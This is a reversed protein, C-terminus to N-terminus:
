LLMFDYCQSWHKLYQYYNFRTKLNEPWYAGFYPKELQMFFQRESSKKNKQIFNTTTTVQFQGLTFRKPSIKSQPKQVLLPGFYAWFSTKLNKSFDVGLVKRIEDYLSSISKFSKKPFFQIKQDLPSCLSTTCTIYTKTHLKESIKSSAAAAYLISIAKSLQKKKKQFFRIKTKEPLLWRLQSNFDHKEHKLGKSWLATFHDSM